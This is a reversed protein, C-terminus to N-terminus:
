RVGVIYGVWVGDHDFKRRMKFVGDSEGEDDDWEDTYIEVERFGAERLLEAVEPLTWFRWEYRFAKPEKWGNKKFGISCRFAHDIPNFSEQHWVYEFAPVKTGDPATSAAIKKVDKGECMAETGGFTDLVFLGGDELSARAAEFYGRLMERDTFIWYSFNLALILEVPETVSRVDREELRVNGQLDQPLAAVNRERAWELTPRDLDLGLVTRGKGRGAWACALQSSGCFDERLRRLPRKHRKKFIKEIFDLDADPCQVAAQYLYLKDMGKPKGGALLRNRGALSSSKSSDSSKPSSSKLRSSKSM